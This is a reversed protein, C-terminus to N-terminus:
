PQELEWPQEWWQLERRQKLIPHVRRQMELVMRIKAGFPLGVVQRRWLDEAERQRALMADSPRARM